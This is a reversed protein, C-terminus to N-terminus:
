RSSLVTVMPSPGARRFGATCTGSSRGVWGPLPASAAGNRARPLGGEPPIEDAGVAQLRSELQHSHGAIGAGVEQLCSELGPTRTDLRQGEGVAQLRSEWGPDRRKPTM